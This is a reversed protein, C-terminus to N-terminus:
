RHSRQSFLHLIMTANFLAHMTIPAVLSGTLEYALGLGLAFVFLPLFSPGHWHSLAFVASVLVLARWLGFRQKLAPYAFGRFLFEEFVPAVSVAFLLLIVLLFPSHTNRLLDIIPQETIPIHLFQCFANSAFIIVGVPPLSALCFAIGWGAATGLKMANLGVADRLNIRNLHFYAAFGALVGIRLLMETPLIIFLLKGVSQKHPLLGLLLYGGNVVVLLGALVLLSIVLARVGWPKPTVRYQPTPVFRALIVADCILGLLIIILGAVVVPSINPAFPM